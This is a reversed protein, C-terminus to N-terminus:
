TGQAVLYRNTRKDQVFFRAGANVQWGSPFRNSTDMELYLSIYGSANQEGDGKPYLVLRRTCIRSLSSFLNKNIKLAYIVM